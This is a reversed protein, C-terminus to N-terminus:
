CELGWSGGDGVGYACCAWLIKRYVEHILMRM